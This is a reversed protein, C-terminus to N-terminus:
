RTASALSSPTRAPAPQAEAAQLRQELARIRAEYDQKMQRIEDRMQVIDDGTAALATYPTASACVAAMAATMVPRKLM